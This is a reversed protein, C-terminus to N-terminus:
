IKKLQEVALIPEQAGFIFNGAVLIDAGADVLEKGTQLNVGGDVEIKVSLGREDIMKRLKKVKDLSHPIFSQGGFGPNVSMILVIEVEELIDELLAVPTHPNVCVGASMGEEHIGKITRHLHPCTEYHVTLNRVGCEGFKKIYPDPNIIMLHADLPLRAVSSIQSIIPFGFTINPVFVGDMVDLHIYDAQSCNVMEVETGLSLFNASLVSPAILHSM